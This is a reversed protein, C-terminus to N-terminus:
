AQLLGLLVTAGVGFPVSNGETVFAVTTRTGFLLPQGRDGFACDGETMLTVTM